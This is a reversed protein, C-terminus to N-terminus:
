GKRHKRLDSVVQRARGQDLGVLGTLARYYGADLDAVVTTELASLVHERADAMTWQGVKKGDILVALFPEAKSNVGPEIELPKTASTDIEPRDKRLDVVLRMVTQVDPILHGLQTFVAADYEARAIAQLIALAYNPASHPDLRIAKDDDIEVTVIYTSGDVSPETKIWVSQEDSM